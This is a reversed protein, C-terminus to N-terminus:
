HGKYSSIFHYAFSVIAAVISSLVYFAGKKVAKDQKLEAIEVRLDNVNKKIEKLDDRLLEFVKDDM